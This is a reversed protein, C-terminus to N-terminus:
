SKRRGAPLTKGGTYKILTKVRERIGRIIALQKAVEASELWGYHIVPGYVSRLGKKPTENLVVPEEYVFTHNIMEFQKESFFPYRGLTVFMSLERLVKKEEDDVKLSIDHALRVCDHTEKVSNEPHAKLFCEAASGLLMQFIYTRSIQRQLLAVFPGTFRSFNPPDETSYVNSGTHIVIEATKLLMNGHEIWAFPDLKTERAAKRLDLRRLQTM